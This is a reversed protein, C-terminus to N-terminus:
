SQVAPKVLPEIGLIPFNFKQRLDDV